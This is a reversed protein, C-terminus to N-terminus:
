VAVVHAVAAHEARQLGKLLRMEEVGVGACGDKQRVVCEGQVNKSVEDNTRGICHNVANVQAFVVEIVNPLMGAMEAVDVERVIIANDGKGGAAVIELICPEHQQPPHPPLLAHGCGPDFGQVGVAAFGDGM